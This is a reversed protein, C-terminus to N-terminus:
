AAQDRTQSINWDGGKYIHVVTAIKWDSPITVNNMIIDLLRVLYLIMAERDLKLIKGFTTRGMSKNRGISALQKRMM